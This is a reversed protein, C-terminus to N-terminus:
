LAECKRKELLQFLRSSIRLSPKQHRRRPAAAAKKFIKGKILELMVDMNWSLYDEYSYVGYEASPEEVKSTKEETDM